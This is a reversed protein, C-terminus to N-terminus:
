KGNPRIEPSYKSWDILQSTPATFTYQPQNCHPCSIMSPAWVKGCVPCQWGQPAAFILEGYGM